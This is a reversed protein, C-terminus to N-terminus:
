VLPKRKSDFIFDINADEMLRALAPSGHGRRPGQKGRAGMTDDPLVSLRHEGAIGPRAL